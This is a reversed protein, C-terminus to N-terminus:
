KENLVSNLYATMTPSTWDQAGVVKRDIKGNRDIVYTEPIMSTGYETEIKKSPDRFTPFNVHYMQLFNQYASEDEDISVGLVTGGRPAIEAQLADLSPAEDVCPPCWSAWFDVLVVQGRLDSLQMPKGNLTFQFNEAPRGHLSPEGQRYDPRAFLYILGAIFLLVAGTKLKRKM